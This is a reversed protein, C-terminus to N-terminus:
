REISLEGLICRLVHFPIDFIETFSHSVIKKKKLLYHKRQM